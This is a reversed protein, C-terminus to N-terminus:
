EECSRFSIKVIKMKMFRDGIKALLRYFASVSCDKLNHYGLMYGRSTVDSKLLWKELDDHVNDVYFYANVDKIDSKEVWGKIMMKVAKKGASDFVLVTNPFAAEMAQLLKKVQEKQFYYFLGAAIFIAGDESQIKSFWSTNNLDVALNITRDNQKIMENRLSIVDEFDLNYIRNKGNDLREGTQDLGCGLNVISAYPHKKLYQDIEYALDYQRMATELVGFRGMFTNIKEKIKCFDYDLSEVLRVSAQDEFLSPYLETCKKRAYLPIVLTEQVSNKQIKTKTDRMKKRVKCRDKFNM